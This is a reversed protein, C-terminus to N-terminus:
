VSPPPRPCHGQEPSLSPPPTCNEPAVAWRIPTPPRIADPARVAGWPQPVDIPSSRQKDTAVVFALASEAICKPPTPALHRPCVPVPPKRCCAHDAAAAPPAPALPRNMQPCPSGDECRVTVGGIAPAAVLLLSSLLATLKYPTYRCM